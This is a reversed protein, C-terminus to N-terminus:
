TVSGSARVPHRFLIIGFATAFVAYIGALPWLGHLEPARALLRLMALGATLFHMLNGIALPRSYIGGILNNRAMWNLGAFGLYLAGLVQVLLMLVPSTPAHMWTLVQDPMFTGALGLLGLVFASASMLIRTFGM